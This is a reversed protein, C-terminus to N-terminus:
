GTAFIRAARRRLVVTLVVTAGLGLALLAWEAPTRAREGSAALAVEGSLSGLWAYVATSPVSGLLAAALYQRAPIRTAGFAYNLVSFPFIPTLRALALVRWGRRGLERDLVQMKPHAALRAAVQGPLAHRGALLAATSGLGVGLLALAFGGAIGFLAGAAAAPVVSPVFAPTAVVHALVFLPAAVAPELGGLGEWLGPAVRWLAVGAGVLSAVALLRLAARRHM